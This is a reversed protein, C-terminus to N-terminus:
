GAEEEIIGAAQRLDRWKARFWKRWRKCGSAGSCHHEPLTCVDCPYATGDAAPGLASVLVTRPCGGGNGDNARM